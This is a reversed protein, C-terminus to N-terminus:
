DGTQINSEGFNSVQDDAYHLGFGKMTRKTIEIITNKNWKPQVSSVPNYVQRNNGDLTYAWVIDTTEAVYDLNFSSVTNPLFSFYNLYETFYYSDDIISPPDIVDDNVAWITDHPVSFVKQGNIRMAIGYIYDTPKIGQGGSISITVPIIFPSLETTTIEDSVMGTNIGTKTNNRKQWRGILDQHYQTQESNWASFLDTSSIGGAQNKFILWKAYNNIDNVTWSM